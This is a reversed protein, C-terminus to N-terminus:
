GSACTPSCWNKITVNRIKWESFLRPYPMSEGM